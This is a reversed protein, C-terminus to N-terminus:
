NIDRNSNFGILLYLPCSKFLGSLFVIVGFSGLLISAFKDALLGDSLFGIYIMAFGAGLRLIRDVRGVNKKILNMVLRRLATAVRLFLFM